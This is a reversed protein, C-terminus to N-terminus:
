AATMRDAISQAVIAADEGVGLLTSSKRKRLFHSGVFFLGDVVTSAGDVQDRGSERLEEALQCGSQGSGIVLVPGSPLSAANRYGGLDIRLLGAPLSEAGVPSTRAPLRGHV